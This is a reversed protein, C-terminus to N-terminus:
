IGGESENVAYSQHHRRSGTLPTKGAHMDVVMKIEHPFPQGRRADVTTAIVIHRGLYQKPQNEGGEREFMQSFNLHALVGNGQERAHARLDAHARQRVTEWLDSLLRSEGNGM